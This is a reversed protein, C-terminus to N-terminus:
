QIPKMYLKLGRLTFSKDLKDFCLNGYIDYDIFQKTFCYMDNLILSIIETIKM